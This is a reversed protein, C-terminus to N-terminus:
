GIIDLLTIVKNNPISLRRSALGRLCRSDVGPATSSAFLSDATYSLRVPWIYLM